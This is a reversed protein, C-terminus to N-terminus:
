RFRKIIEEAEKLNAVEYLEIKDTEEQWKENTRKTILNDSMITIIRKIGNKALLPQNVEVYYDLTEPLIVSKANVIDAVITDVKHDQICKTTTETLEKMDDLQLAMNIWHNIIYNLKSEYVSTLHKKHKYIEM